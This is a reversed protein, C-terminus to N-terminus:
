HSFGFRLSLRETVRALPFLVLAIAATFPLVTMLALASAVHLRVLYPMRAVIAVDPTLNVVSALYSPWMVAAWSSAWRDLVALLLGSAMVLTVLALVASEAHATRAGARWRDLNHGLLGVLGAVALVSAALLTGELVLLRVPSRNWSLIGAPFLLILLHGVLVFLVGRRWYADGWLWEVSASFQRQLDARSQWPGVVRVIPGILLCGAAVYPWVGFLWYDVVGGGSLNVEDSSNDGNSAIGRWHHPVPTGRQM